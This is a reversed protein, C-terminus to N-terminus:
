VARTLLAASTCISSAQCTALITTPAEARDIARFGLHAFFDAASTTLLFARTGGNEVIQRIIAETLIRGYGKGRNAEPVVISRLLADDGYIEFGGFGILRGQDEVRYFFRGPEEIDDIPLGGALLAAQLDPDVGPIEQTAIM